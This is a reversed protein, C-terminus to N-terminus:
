WAALIPKVRKHSEQILRKADGHIYAAIQGYKTGGIVEYPIAQGGKAVLRGFAIERGIKKVFQDRKSCKASAYRIVSEADNYIYAVTIKRGQDDTIYVFRATQTDNM